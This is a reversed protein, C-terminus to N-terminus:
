TEPGTIVIGDVDRMIVGHQLAASFKPYYIGCHECCEHGTAADPPIVLQGARRDFYTIGGAPWRHGYAEVCDVTQPANSM